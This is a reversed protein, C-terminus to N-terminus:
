RRSMSIPRGAATAPPPGAGAGLLVDACHVALAILAVRLLINASVSLRGLETASLLWVVLLWWGAVVVGAWGVVSLSTWQWRRRVALATTGVLALLGLIQLSGVGWVIRWVGVLRRLHTFGLESRGRCGPWGGRLGLFLGAPIAPWTRATPPSSTATSGTSSPATASFLASHASFQGAWGQEAGSVPLGRSEFYATAGAHPLIRDVLIAMSNFRQIPRDGHGFSVTAASWVAVIALAAAVPRLRRRRGTSAM